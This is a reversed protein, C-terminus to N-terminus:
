IQRLITIPFLSLILDTAITIGTTINSVNSLVQHSACKGQITDDWGAAVPKCQLLIFLFYSVHSIIIVAM